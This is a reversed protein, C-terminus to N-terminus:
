SRDLYRDEIAQCVQDRAEEVAAAHQNALNHEIRTLERALTQDALTGAVWRSFDRRNLHYGLTTSDLNRVRHRFQELTAAAADADTPSQDHFYFRRERPLPSAAYKRQHRVHDSSRRGVRFERSTGAWSLTAGAQGGPGGGPAETIAIRVDVGDTLEASLLEPRWTILCSGTGVAVTQSQELWAQQHAEDYLVWHPLGHRGREAAVAAPLRELYALQADVDVGSLDLVVSAQRPRLLALLDHPNPLGASGDVLHVGSRHALGPHDGEPDIILLSYGAEIWREALLGALYSKGMGSGGTVLVSAQSGPVRAPTGDAYSGVSIWRRPPCLRRRGALLPGTLLQAVGSGDPRDLLLDAHQSLSPVADAVAAGVEAARLLSLDNEADGVALANHEGLGLAELGAHLGSGKTVGAPLIMAAGRNHVVQYDLGLATIVEAAVGGDAGDIAVLVEGRGCGVGREALARDVAPDVPEQLLRTEGTRGVTLVAGNETVVADFHTVLGPFVRDLDRRVRGTVLLMAREQRAKDIAALVEPAVRDNVALTGDLDLAVARFFWM